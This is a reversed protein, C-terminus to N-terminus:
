LCPIGTHLGTFWNTASEHIVEPDIHIVDKDRLTELNLGDKHKRGAHEGLVSKITHGIRGTKANM